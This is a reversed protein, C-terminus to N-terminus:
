FKPAIERLKAEQQHVEELARELQGVDGQLGEHITDADFIEDLEREELVAIRTQMENWV